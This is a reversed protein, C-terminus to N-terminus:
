KIPSIFHGHFFFSSLIMGLAKVTGLTDKGGAALVGTQIFLSGKGKGSKHLDRIEEENTVQAIMGRAVLEEYIGM